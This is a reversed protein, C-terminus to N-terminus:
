AADGSTDLLTAVTYGAGVYEAAEGATPVIELRGVTKQRVHPRHIIVRSALRLQQLSSWSVFCGCSLSLITRSPRRVRGADHPSSRACFRVRMRCEWIRKSSRYLQPRFATPWVPVLRPYAMQQRCQPESVHHPIFGFSPLGSVPELMWALHALNEVGKGAKHLDGRRDPALRMPQCCFRM